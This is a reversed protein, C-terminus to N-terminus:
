HLIPALNKVTLLGCAIAQAEAANYDAEAEQLAIDLEFNEM